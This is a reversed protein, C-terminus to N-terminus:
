PAFPPPDDDKLDPLGAVPPVRYEISPPLRRATARAPHCSLTCDPDTLPEPRFEGPRSTRVRLALARRQRRIVSTFCVQRLRVAYRRKQDSPSMPPQSNK